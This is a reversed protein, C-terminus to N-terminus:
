PRLLRDAVDLGRRNGLRERGMNRKGAGGAGSDHLHALPPRRDRPRLRRHLRARGAEAGSVGVIVKGDLALPALTLSFGIANDAVEVDWRVAGSRADLAVLHADLTGVFVTSELIAVGRNVRPFGINLVNSGMEPSWTWLRKGTRADLATVTSPPETVYMVGDAVVPSTEILGDDMQYAWIVRLDGVNGDNVQDLKSFRHSAYNGSYTLWSEPESDAAVLRKFPVQATAPM